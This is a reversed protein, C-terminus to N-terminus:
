ISQLFSQGGRSEVLGWCGELTIYIYYSNYTFLSIIKKLLYSFLYLNVMVACLYIVLYSLFLQESESWPGSKDM